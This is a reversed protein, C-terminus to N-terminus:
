WLVWEETQPDIFEFRVIIKNELEEAKELVVERMWRKCENHWRKPKNPLIPMNFSDTFTNSKQMKCAGVSGDRFAHIFTYTM